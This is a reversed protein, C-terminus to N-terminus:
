LTVRVGAALRRDGSIWTQPYSTSGTGSNIVSMSFVQPKALLNNGEVFLSLERNVSFSAEFDLTAFANGYAATNGVGRVNPDFLYRSRYNYALRANLRGNDYFLSENTTWKSLNQFAHASINDEPDADEIGSAYTANVQVGFGSWFSPLFSFAQTYNLELGDVYGGQTNVPLQDDFTVGQILRARHATQIFSQVNKYFLAASIISSPAFYYELSLDYQWARFPDLNPNGGVITNTTGASVSYRPVMDDLTPRSMVKAAALRLLLDQRLDAILNFSPLVDNYSRSLTYLSGSPVIVSPAPPPPPPSIITLDSLNVATDTVYQNTRVARVGLNGNIPISTAFAYDGMIYVATDKENISYQNSPNLSPATTSANLWNSYSGSFFQNLYLQPNIYAYSTPVNASGEYGTLSVSGLPSASVYPAVSNHGQSFDGEFVGHNQNLEEQYRVGSRLARLWGSDLHYAVDVRASRIADSRALVNGGVYNFFYSSGSATNFNPDLVFSAVPDGPIVHYGGIYAPGIDFAGAELTDIGIQSSGSRSNSYDLASNLEWNGARWEEKLTLNDLTDTNWTQFNQTEYYIGKGIQTTLVGNPDAQLDSYGSAYQPRITFAPQLEDNETKAHMGILSLTLNSSPRVQFAAYETKTDYINRSQTIGLSDLVLYDTGNITQPDLQADTVTANLYKRRSWAFGVTAGVKGDAFVNSYIASLNPQPSNEGTSSQGELNAKFVQKGIDLPLITKVNITAAVGGETLDAKPSKYVELASIFDPSLVSFNFSRDSTQNILSNSASAVGEGNLSVYNFETPLGRVSVYQGEDATAGDASLRTIQVGTIRQLSEALNTDPFQGIDEASITDSVVDTLRKIKISDAISKRYGTVVVEQLAPSDAQDADSLTANATSDAAPPASLAAAAAVEIASAVVLAAGFTVTPKARNM